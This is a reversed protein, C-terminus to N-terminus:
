RINKIEEIFDKGIKYPALRNLTKIQEELISPDIKSKIMANYELPSEAKYQATLDKFYDYIKNFDDKSKESLLEIVSNLSKSEKQNIYFSIYSILYYPMPTKKDESKKKDFEAKRYLLYLFILNDVTLFETIRTSLNKYLESTPKLVQSKKTYAFFGDKIFALSVQLLKDLPITIDTIKTFDAGVNKISKSAKVILKNKDVTSLKSYKHKDSPKVLLLFGKEYFHEQLRLFYEKKSAFAKENISNQSNTYKVVKEHFDPTINTQILIKTMVYVGSFTNSIETPSYSNLVEYITNVTQCGNVIQPQILELKTSSIKKSSDCIITVGNNYYFFNKRENEDRLTKIIGTNISSKGLYERINEDFLPYDVKKSEKYMEYLTTIPTMMYYAESMGPLNYDKPKIQLFTGKFKTTVLYNFKIDKKFSAGFYMEYIDVLSFYKARIECLVEKSSKNFENIVNIIDQSISENTIYFHLWVKYSKDSKAINYARQLEVNKYNGEELKGLSTTLFHSVEKVNLNTNESYYKNQILFLEKTEEYHVFCDIGKDNYETINNIALEEDVEYMKTQIWFNFSYEDKILQPDLYLYSSKIFSIDEYLQKRFNQLNM